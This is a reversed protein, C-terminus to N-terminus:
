KKIKKLGDVVLVIGLILYITFIVIFHAKLDFTNKLLPEIVSTYFIYILYGGALIRLIGTRKKRGDDVTDEQTNSGNDNIDKFNSEESNSSNQNTTSDNVIEVEQIQGKNDTLNSKDEM